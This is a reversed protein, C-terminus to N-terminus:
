GVSRLHREHRERPARTDTRMIGFIGKGTGARFFRIRAEQQNENLRRVADHLRQHQDM